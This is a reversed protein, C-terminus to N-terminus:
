QSNYQSRSAVTKLSENDGVCGVTEQKIGLPSGPVFGRPILPDFRSRSGGTQDRSLMKTNGLGRPILPDFRSQSGRIQDRSPM